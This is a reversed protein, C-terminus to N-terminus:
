SWTKGQAIDSITGYGVGFLQAIKKYTLEKDAILKRIRRVEGESLKTTGQWEGRASMEHMSTDHCNQGHTKWQLHLPNVCGLHGNGCNHAAEHAPTPPDGYFKICILRHARDSQPVGAVKGYGFQDRGYPWFLCDPSNWKLAKYVFALPAGDPAKVNKRLPDGFRKWRKGHLSCYGWAFHKRDCGEVLCKRESGWVRIDTSGPDGNNRWRAYHGRCYGKAYLDRDCGQVSCGM